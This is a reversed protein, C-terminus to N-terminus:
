NNNQIKELLKQLEKPNRLYYEVEDWTFGYNLLEKQLTYTNIM